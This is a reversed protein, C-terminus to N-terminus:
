ATRSKGPHHPFLPQPLANPHLPFPVLNPITTDLPSFGRAADGHLYIMTTALDTHGLLDQITRPDAGARMAHTAFAHRLTHPTIRKTIGTRRVAARIQKAVSEGTAHWRHQNRVITSPFLYQWGFQTNANRYKQALRGPLEVLGDGQALDQQHLSHRKALHQELAPIMIRPLVTLRSKGGKGDWIRVTAAELDLDQVRLTCCEGVRLGGGYMLGAMLRAQGTMHQFIAVLENRSPIIRLTQAVKPMPPLDLHGLDRKLLHDFVFKLACLAQKRTGPAYKQSEMELLWARVDDGDWETGPKQIFAYFKRCHWLYCDFTNPRLSAEVMANKLRAAFTM